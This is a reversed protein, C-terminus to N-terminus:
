AQKKFGNMAARVLGFLLLGITLLFFTWKISTSVTTLWAVISLKSPFISLMTVVGINELMDFLWSIAPAINFKQFMNDSSFARQFVVSLLLGFFLTYAIPHVIDATLDFIRYAARGAEGYSEVLAYAEDPTYFFKLDLPGTPILAQMRPALASFFFIELALALLILWTKSSLKRFTSSLNDLM